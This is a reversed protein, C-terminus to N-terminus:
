DKEIEKRLAKQLLYYGKENLHVEDHLLFDQENKFVLKSDIVVIKKNKSAHEKVFSNFKSNYKQFTKNSSPPISIWYINETISDTSLYNILTDIDKELQPLKSMKDQAGFFLIYNPTSEINKIDNVLDKTKTFVGGVFPYNFVDRQNGYFVLPEKKALNKRFEKGWTWIIQSDGITTIAKSGSQILPLTIIALSGLRNKKDPINNIWVVGKFIANTNKIIITTARFYYDKKQITLKFSNNKNLFSLEKKTKSVALFDHSISDLTVEPIEQITKTNSWDFSFQIFKEPAKKIFDFILYLFLLVSTTLLISRMKKM